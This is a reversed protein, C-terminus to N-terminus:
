NGVRPHPPSQPSPSAARRRAVAPHSTLRTLRPPPHAAAVPLESSAEHGLLWTRPLPATGEGWCSPGRTRSSALRAWTHPTPPCTFVTREVPGANTCIPTKGWAVRSRPPGSPHLTRLPAHPCVCVCVYLTVSVCASGALSLSLTLFCSLSPKSYSLPSLGWCPPDSFAKRM